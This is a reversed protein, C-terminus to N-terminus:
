VVMTVFAGSVTKKFLVPRVAPGLTRRVCQKPM